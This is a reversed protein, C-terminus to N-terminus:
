QAAEKSIRQSTLFVLSKFLVDVVFLWFLFNDFTSEKFLLICKVPVM